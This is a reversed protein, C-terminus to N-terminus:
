LVYKHCRYRINNGHVRDNQLFNDYSGKCDPVETHQLQATFIDIFLFYTRLFNTAQKFKPEVQDEWEKELEEKKEQRVRRMQEMAYPDAAGAHM